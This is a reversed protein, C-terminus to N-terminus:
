LNKEMLEIFKEFAASLVDSDSDLSHGSNPLAFVEYAAGSGALQELFMQSTGPLITTDREAYVLVTPPNEPKVFYLPSVDKMVSIDEDVIEQGSLYECITLLSGNASLYSRLLDKDIDFCTPPALPCVVGIEVPSNEYTYAYMLALHGGASHGTMALKKTSDIHLNAANRRLVEVATAIEDLMDSCHHEPGVFLYDISVFVYGADCCAKKAMGIMGTRSGEIWTGGHIYIVAPAVGNVAQDASPLYVDLKSGTDTNYVLGDIRQTKDDLEYADCLPVMPYNDDAPVPEAASGAEASDTPTEETEGPIAEEAAPLEGPVPEPTEEKRGCSALALMALILLLCFLIRHNM